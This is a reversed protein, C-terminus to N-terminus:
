QRSPNQTPPWHRAALRSAKDLKSRFRGYIPSHSDMEVSLEGWAGPDGCTNHAFAVWDRAGDDALPYPTQRAAPTSRDCIGSEYLVRRLYV